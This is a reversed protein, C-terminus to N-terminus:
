LVEGTAPIYERFPVDIAGAARMESDRIADLLDLLVLCGLVQAYAGLTGLLDARGERRGM